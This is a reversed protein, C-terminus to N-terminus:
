ERVAVDTFYLQFSGDTNRHQTAINMGNYNKYDEWTNTLSRERNGKPLYVWERIIHDDGFYVEYVDGPTYGADPPYTVTVRQMSDGSMPAVAEPEHEYKMKDWALQFPYLLWYKDNIFKQDIDPHTQAETKHNYEVTSGKETLMVEGSKPKWNWSRQSVVSDNVAVNFTYTMEEVEDFNEIGNALAIKEVITPEDNEGSSFDTEKSADKCSSLLLLLFWFGILNKM